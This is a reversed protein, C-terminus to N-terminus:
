QVRFSQFTATSWWLPQEFAWACWRRVFEKCWSLDRPQWVCQGGTYHMAHTVQMTRASGAVCLVTFLRGPIRTWNTYMISQGKSIKVPYRKWELIFTYGNIVVTGDIDSMCIKGPFCDAFVEIKPRALDNYCGSQPCSWLLPNGQKVIM